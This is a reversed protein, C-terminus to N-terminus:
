FETMRIMVRKAGSSYHGRDFKLKLRDVGGMCDHSPRWSNTSYRRWPRWVLQIIVPTNCCIVPWSVTICCPRRRRDMRIYYLKGFSMSYNNYGRKNQITVTWRWHPEVSQTSYKHKHSIHKFQWSRGEIDYDERRQIQFMLPYFATFSVRWVCCMIIHM